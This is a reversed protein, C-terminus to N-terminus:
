GQRSVIEEFTRRVAFTPVSSKELIFHAEGINDAFGLIEYATTGDHLKCVNYRDSGEYVSFTRQGRKNVLCVFRPCQFDHKIAEVALNLDVLKTSGVASAEELVLEFKACWEPSQRWVLPLHTLLEIQKGDLIFASQHGYYVRFGLVQSM